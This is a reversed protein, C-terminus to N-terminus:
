ASIMAPDDRQCGSDKDEIAGTWTRPHPRAKQSALVQPQAGSCLSGHWGAAGGPADKRAGKRELLM